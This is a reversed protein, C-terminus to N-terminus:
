IEAEMDIDWPGPLSGPSNLRRRPRRRLRPGEPRQWVAPENMAEQQAAARRANEADMRASLEKIGQSIFQLDERIEAYTAM